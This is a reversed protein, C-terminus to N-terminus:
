SHVSSFRYARWAKPIDLLVVKGNCRGKVLMGVLDFWFIDTYWNSKNKKV